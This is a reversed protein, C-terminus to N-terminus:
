RKKRFPGLGRSLTIQGATFTGEDVFLGADRTSVLRGDNDFTLERMKTTLKLKGPGVVDVTVYSWETCQECQGWGEKYSVPGEWRRQGAPRLTLILTGTLVDDPTEWTGALDMNAAPLSGSVAPSAPPAAPVAPPAQRSPTPAAATRNSDAALRGWSALVSAYFAAHGTQLCSFTAALLAESGPLLRDVPAAPRASLADALFAAVDSGLCARNAASTAVSTALDLVGKRRQVNTLWSCAFQRRVTDRLNSLLRAPDQQQAFRYHVQIDTDIAVSHTGTCQPAPANATVAQAEAPIIAM